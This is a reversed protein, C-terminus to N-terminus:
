RKTADGKSDKWGSGGTDATVKCEVDDNPYSVRDIKKPPSLAALEAFVVEPSVNIDVGFSISIRM